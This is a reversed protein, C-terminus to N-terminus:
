VRSITDSKIVWWREPWEGDSQIVTGRRKHFAVQVANAVQDIEIGTPSDHGHQELLIAAVERCTMPQEADRLTSLAGRTLQGLKIPNKHVWKRLPQIHDRTWGPHDDKIFAEAAKILTDIEWLRERMEPLRKMLGEVKEIEPGLDEKEALLYAIKREVAELRNTRGM